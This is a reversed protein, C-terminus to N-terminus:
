LYFRTSEFKISTPHILDFALVKLSQCRYYRHHFHTNTTGAKAAAMDLLEHGSAFIEEAYEYAWKPGLPKLFLRKGIRDFLITGLYNEFTSFKDVSPKRPSMCFKRRKSSHQGRQRHHLLLLPQHYNLQAM